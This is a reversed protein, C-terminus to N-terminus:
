YFGTNVFQVFFAVQSYRNLRDFLPARNYGQMKAELFVFLDLHRDLISKLADLVNEPANKQHWTHSPVAKAIFQTLISKLPWFLVGLKQPRFFLVINANHSHAEQMWGQRHVDIFMSSCRRVYCSTVCFLINNVNVTVLRSWTEERHRTNTCRVRAAM